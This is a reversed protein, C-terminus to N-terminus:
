AWPNHDTQDPATYQDPAAYPSPTREQWEGEARHVAQAHARERRDARVRRYIAYAIAGPIGFICLFGLALNFLLGFLGSISDGIGHGGDSAHQAPAATSTPTTSASPPATAAPTVRLSNACAQVLKPDRVVGEYVIYESCSGPYMAQWAAKDSGGDECSYPHGGDAVCKQYADHARERVALAARQETAPDPKSVGDEGCGALATLGALMVVAAISNRNMM